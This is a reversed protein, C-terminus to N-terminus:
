GVTLQRDIQEERGLALPEGLRAQPRLDDALVGDLAASALARGLAPAHKFMNDGAVFYVQEAGWVGIADTNWPLSTVWCHRFSLPTPILGPLASKVYDVAGATVSELGSPEISSLDDRVPIRGNGEVGISYERAGPTPTGYSGGPRFCDTVDVICPAEALLEDRIPFTVRGHLGLQVPISVGLGRALRATDAGACVVASGHEARGGNTRIEVSEHRTPWLTLVEDAVFSGAVHSSLAKIAAAARIAGGELDLFASGEYRALLPMHERLDSPALEEVQIGTTSLQGVYETVDPALWVVGNDTVLQIGFSGEWERYISRSERAWGILRDDDHLHRFIRSEGGSQSGGFAGREYVTVTAGRERLGYATALGVIGGGVVAVDSTQTLFRREIWGTSGGASQELAYALHNSTTM